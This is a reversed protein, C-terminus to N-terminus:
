ATSMAAGYRGGDGVLAGHPAPPEALLFIAEVLAVGLEGHGRAVLLEAALSLQALDVGPHFAPGDCSSAM